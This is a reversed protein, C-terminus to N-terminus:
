YAGLAGDPRVYYYEISKRDRVVAIMRKWDPPCQFARIRDLEAQSPMTNTKVQVLAVGGDPHLMILDFLGLSGGSKCCYWGKNEWEKKVKRESRNGKTKAKIAEAM